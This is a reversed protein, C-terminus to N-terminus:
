IKENLKGNLYNAMTTKDNLSKGGCHKNWASSGKHLGGTAYVFDQVVLGNFSNRGEIKICATKLDDSVYFGRYAISKRDNASDFISKVIFAVVFSEKQHAEDKAQQEKARREASEKACAKAAEIREQEAEKDQKEIALQEPTKSYHAYLSSASSFAFMLVVAFLSAYVLKLLIGQHKGALQGLKYAIM